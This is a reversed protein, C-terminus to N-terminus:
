ALVGVGEAQGQYRRMTGLATELSSLWATAGHQRSFEVQDRVSQMFDIRTDDMQGAQEADSPGMMVVFGESGDISIEGSKIKSNIVNRLESRTMNNFNMATGDAVGSGLSQPTSASGAVPM